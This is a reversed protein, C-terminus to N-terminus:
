INWLMNKTIQDFGLTLFCIELGLFGCFLLKAEEVSKNPELCKLSMQFNFLTLSIDASGGVVSRQEAMFNQPFIM